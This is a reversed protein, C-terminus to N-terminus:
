RESRGIMGVCEYPSYGAALLYFVFSFRREMVGLLYCLRLVDILDM